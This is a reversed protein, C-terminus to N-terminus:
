AANARELVSSLIGHIEPISLSAYDLLVHRLDSEIGDLCHVLQVSVLTRDRSRFVDCSALRLDAHIRKLSRATRLLQIEDRYPTGLARAVRECRVEIETTSGNM